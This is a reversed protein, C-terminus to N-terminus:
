QSGQTIERRFQGNYKGWLYNFYDVLICRMFTPPDINIIPLVPKGSGNFDGYVAPFANEWTSSMAFVPSTSLVRRTQAFRRFM